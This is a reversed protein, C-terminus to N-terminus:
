PWIRPHLEPTNQLAHIFSHLFTNGQPHTTHHHVMKAYLDIREQDTLLDELHQHPIGAAAWTTLTRYHHESITDTHPAQDNMWYYMEPRQCIPLFEIHHLHHITIIGALGHGFALYCTIPHQLNRLTSKLVTLSETPPTGSELDLLVMQSSQLLRKLM